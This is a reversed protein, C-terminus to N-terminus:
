PHVITYQVDLECEVMFPLTDMDAYKFSPCLGKCNCLLTKINV